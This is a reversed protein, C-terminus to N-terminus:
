RQDIPCKSVPHCVTLVLYRKVSIVLFKIKFDYINLLKGITKANLKYGFM